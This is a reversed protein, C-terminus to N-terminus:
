LKKNFAQGTLNFERRNNIVEFGNFNGGALSSVGRTSSFCPM